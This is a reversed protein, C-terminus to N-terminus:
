DSRRSAPACRGRGALDFWRAQPRHQAAPQLRDLGSVLLHEFRGAEADTLLGELQASVNGKGPEDVDTVVRVRPSEPFSRCIVEECIVRTQQVSSENAGRAYIAARNLITVSM